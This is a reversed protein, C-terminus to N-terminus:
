LSSWHAKSLTIPIHILTVWQPNIELILTQTFICSPCVPHAVVNCNWHFNWEDCIKCLNKTELRMLDLPIGLAFFDLNENTCSGRIMLEGM